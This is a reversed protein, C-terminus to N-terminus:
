VVALSLNRTVVLHWCGLRAHEEKLYARMEIDDMWGLEDWLAFVDENPITAPIGHQSRLNDAINLRYGTLAM